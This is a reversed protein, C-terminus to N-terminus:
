FNGLWNVPAQWTVSGNGAEILDGYVAMHTSSVAGPQVSRVRAAAVKPRKAGEITAVGAFRSRQRARAPAIM